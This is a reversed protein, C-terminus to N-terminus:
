RIIKINADYLIKAEPGYSKIDINWTKEAHSNVISFNHIGSAGYMQKPNPTKEWANPYVRAHIGSSTLEYTEYGLVSKDIKMLENLHRDGSVFFVPSKTKKLELLLDKFDKPNDKEYSEFNHYAGFFQDGEILWTPTKKQALISLIKKKQENGWQTQQEEKNTARFSRADAFVFRQGFAEFVFGAGPLVTIAKETADIDFFSRLINLAEQKYPYSGNGNNVGYDHDDWIALTPTLKSMHYLVLTNWTEVYRRWLMNIKADRSNVVSEKTPMYDSYVNDGILFTYEPQLDFYDNWMYFQEKVFSDNMCSAVGIKISKKNMDVTQFRRQDLIEEKRLIQFTYYAEAELDKLKLQYIVWNTAGAPIQKIDHIAKSAENADLIKFELKENKKALVTLQTSTSTTLGQLVAYPHLQLEKKYDQLEPMSTTACGILIWFCFGVFVLSKKM